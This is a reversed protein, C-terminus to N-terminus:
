CSGLQPDGLFSCFSWTLSGTASKSDSKFLLCVEEIFDSITSMIKKSLIGLVLKLRFPMIAMLDLNLNPGAFNQSLDLPFGCITIFVHIMNYGLVRVEITDHLM